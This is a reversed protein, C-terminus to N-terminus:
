EPFGADMWSKFKLLMEDTWPRGPPMRQSKLMGYIKFANAKVDDYDDLNYITGTIDRVFDSKMCAIDSQTFLHKIGDDLGPTGNWTPVAQVAVGAALAPLLDQQDGWSFLGALVQPAVPIRKTVRKKAMALMPAMHVGMHHEAAHLAAQYAPENEPLNKAQRIRSWQADIWGHLRWFRRNLLNVQPDGMNIESLGDTFRNHLFNHIGTTRDNSINTPNGATPRRNTEVYRGFDDNDAFATHPGEIRAIAALMNGPFPGPAPSNAPIPDSPDAADTPPTLWGRFLGSHAPFESVLERIMVRHMALFELGNGAAGEQISARSWGEQQAFAQAAPVADWLRTLHWELHHVGWNRQEIFEVIEDPM